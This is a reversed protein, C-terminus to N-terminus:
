EILCGFGFKKLFSDVKDKGLLLSTKWKLLDADSNKSNLVIRYYEALIRESESELKDLNQKGARNSSPDTQSNSLLGIGELLKCVRRPCLLKKLQKQLVLIQKQSSFLYISKSSDLGKPRCSPTFTSLAFRRKTRKRKHYNIIVEKRTPKPRSKPKLFGGKPDIARYKRKLEAFYNSRQRQFSDRILRAKSVKKIFKVEFDDFHVLVDKSIKHKLKRLKLAYDLVSAKLGKRLSPDKVCKKLIQKIARIAQVKIRKLAEKGNKLVEAERQLDSDFLLVINGQAEQIINMKKSNPKMNFKNNQSGMILSLNFDSIKSLLRNKTNPMNLRTTRREHATQHLTRSIGGLLTSSCEDFVKELDMLLYEKTKQVGNIKRAEAKLKDSHVSELVQVIQHLVNKLRRANLVRDKFKSINNKKLTYLRWIEEEKEPLTPKRPTPLDLLSEVFKQHGELRDM